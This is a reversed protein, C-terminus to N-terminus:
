DSRIPIKGFGKVIKTARRQVKELCEVDRKFAYELHPRVYCNYLIRFGDVDVAGFTIKIMGLVAMAKNAAKSCQEKWKLDASVWVGLDKEVTSEIPKRREGQEYLSYWGVKENCGMRMVKCKGSNFKLLWKRVM